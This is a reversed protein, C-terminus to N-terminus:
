GRLNSTKINKNVYKNGNKIINKIPKDNKIHAQTSPIGFNHM